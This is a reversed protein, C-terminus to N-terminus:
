TGITGVPETVTVTAAADQYVIPTADELQSGTSTSTPNSIYNLDFIQINPQTQYTLAGQLSYNNKFVSGILQYGVSELAQTLGKINSLNRHSARVKGRIYSFHYSNMLKQNMFTTEVILLKVGSVNILTITDSLQLHYLGNSHMFQLCTLGDAM